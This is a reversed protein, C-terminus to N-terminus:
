VGRTQAGWLLKHLQIQLRVPQGSQLIWEALETPDLQGAVPSLLVPVRGVLGHRTMVEVSWDFDERDAVVFKVEDGPELLDLNSWLNSECEGSGPTKVDLIVHVRPDVPGTDLAGSTELLVTKGLDALRAMLPLVEAQLLPEGGTVEVLGDGLVVARDVVQDVTLAEGQHFAHPTDCYVCRLHCATLRIFTCPLGAWTGEGQLSRYMEHIVLTGTRKGELPKLRLGSASKLLSLV